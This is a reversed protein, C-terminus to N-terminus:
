LRHRQRTLGASLPGVCRPYFADVMSLFRVVALGWENAWYSRALSNVSILKADQHLRTVIAPLGDDSLLLNVARTWDRADISETEYVLDTMADMVGLLPDLWLPLLPAGSRSKLLAALEREQSPAGVVAAVLHALYNDSRYALRRVVPDHHVVARLALREIWDIPEWGGAPTRAWQWGSAHFRELAPLPQRRVAEFTPREYPECLELVRAWVEAEIM